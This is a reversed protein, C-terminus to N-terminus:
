GFWEPVDPGPPHHTKEWEAAGHGTIQDYKGLPRLLKGERTPWWYGSWPLASAKGREFGDGTELSRFGGLASPPEHHVRSPTEERDINDGTVESSRGSFCLGGHSRM